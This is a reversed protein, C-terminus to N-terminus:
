IKSGLVSVRNAYFNVLIFILITFAILSSGGYSFFPLPIGIVPVLGITMGTNVMLHFFLISMASYGYIRAFRTKAYEAMYQIRWLLLLFAILVATSGLWGYEEGITCYIFDTEQKPVFRYKTYNGQLFGKGTLGGSGIAIKSQNVNYGAGQPDLNPDFLVKIRVQQHPALVNTMVYDVSLSLGSLMAVVVVHLVILRTMHKRDFVFWFILLALAIIGGIVYLTGFALTCIVAAGLIILSIPVIPHLGERFFVILFSGFVLASGTDNQLIVILAPFLIFSAAILVQRVNRMSFNTGSMYRAVALATAVKAFESPQFPQGAIILWSKAGNVEKGIVLVLLLSAMALGYGLYSTAELFRQDLMLIIVGIVLSIGIWMFQKGHIYDLDFIGAEDNVGSVAYITMWGLLVLGLYLLLAAWDFDFRNRNM